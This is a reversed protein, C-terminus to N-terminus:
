VLHCVFCSRVSLTIVNKHLRVYFRTHKIFCLIVVLEEMMLVNCQEYIRLVAVHRANTASSRFSRSWMM